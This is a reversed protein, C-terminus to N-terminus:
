EDAKLGPVVTRTPERYLNDHVLVATEGVFYTHFDAVVLNIATATGEQREIKKIHAGGFLSHLQQDPTLHKAMRWGDGTVWLPHGLTSTITESEFYMQVVPVPQRITTALVPKFSLEGTEPQQSLVRDGIRVTEIAQIGTDTWVKTGPVFCETQSSNTAPASTITSPSQVGFSTMLREQWQFGYRTQKKIEVDNYDQWWERWQKPDRTVQARTTEELVDFIRENNISAALNALNIARERAEAERVSRVVDIYRGFRAMAQGQVANFIRPRFILATEYASDTTAGEQYYAHQYSFSGDRGEVIRWETEIPSELGSLLLPVYDFMSRLKLEDIASHRVPAFQSLVAFKVLVETADQTSTSGLKSVLAQGFQESSQRLFLEIVRALQPDEASHLEDAAQQSQENNANIREQWKRLRPVWKTVARQLDEAEQKATKIQQETLPVGQYLELGLRRLAQKRTSPDYSSDALVRWYHMAAVDDMHNRTCFQALKLDADPQSNLKNRLERYELIASDISNLQQHQSVSLWEGTKARMFGLQWNAAPHNSDKEHAARLLEARRSLDGELEARLAGRVLEDASSTGTDSKSDAAVSYPLGFGIGVVFALSAIWKRENM